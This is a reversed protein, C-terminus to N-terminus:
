YRGGAYTVKGSKDVYVFNWNHDVNCLDVDDPGVWSTFKYPNYRATKWYDKTTHMSLDGEIWAHVNKRRERLVRQRGAERVVFKVNTLNVHDPHATVRWGKKEKNYTQLSLTGTRLNRYVRVRV